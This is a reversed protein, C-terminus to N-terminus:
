DGKHPHALVIGGDVDKVAGIHTLALIACRAHAAATNEQWGLHRKFVGALNAQTLPRDTKMLLHAVMALWKMKGVFPNEGCRLKEVVNYNGRDLREILERAKQPLSLLAQDGCTRPPAPAKHRKPKIGFHDRLAALNAEHLPRCAAAFPCSMCTANTADYALASGFCGPSFPPVQSM